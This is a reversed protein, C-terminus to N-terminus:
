RRRRGTKRKKPRRGRGKRASKESGPENADHEVPVDLDYAMMPKFGISLFEQSVSDLHLNNVTIERRLIAAKLYETGCNQLESTRLDRLEYGIITGTIDRTKGICTMHKM